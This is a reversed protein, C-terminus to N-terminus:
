LSTSLHGAVSVSVRISTRRSHDARWCSGIRKFYCDPVSPSLGALVVTVKHVESLQGGGEEASAEEVFCDMLWSADEGADILATLDGVQRTQAQGTAADEKCGIFPSSSEVMEFLKLYERLSDGIMLEASCALKMAGLLRVEMAQVGGMNAVVSSLCHGFIEAQPCKASGDLILTVAPVRIVSHATMGFEMVCSADDDVSGPPEIRGGSLRKLERREEM